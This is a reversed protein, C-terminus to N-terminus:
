VEVACTYNKSVNSSLFSLASDDGSILSEALLKGLFAHYLLGRSGLATLVWLGEKIRAAIPFYHGRRVVRLAAKCGVITLEKVAPFFQAVIPFLASKAVAANAVEDLNAREYTSGVYCAGEGALAIYGKSISSRSPLELSQPYSCTLVQGKVLSVKLANLEPFRGIGAGAAVIIRDFDKLEALDAIEKLVLTAGKGQVARWLGELYRPCDITMGSEILFSSEALPRVDKFQRCHSTFLQNQEETAIHRIVGDKNAVSQKLASEAADILVKTAEIGATALLSRRGDEGVYPHMLGAAIGSAGAGIGKADFLVVECSSLELLHWAVSLGSFGAGVIAIRM